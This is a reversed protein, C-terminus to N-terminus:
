WVGHKEHVSVQRGPSLHSRAGSQPRQAIQGAWAAGSGLGEGSRHGAGRKGVGLGWQRPLKM